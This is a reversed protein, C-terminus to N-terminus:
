NISANGYPLILEHGDIMPSSVSFSDFWIRAVNLYQDFFGTAMLSAAVEGCGYSDGNQASDRTQACHEISISSGRERM